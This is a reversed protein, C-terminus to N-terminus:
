FAKAFEKAYDELKVRGMTEPKHKEYDEGLAGTHLANGLEVFSAVVHDPMGTKKMGDRMAESSITKWKLEPKSIGAGLVRAIEQATREDSAVYRVKRGVGTASLEDAAAAAIDESHALVIKDEDGYNAAMFGTGKIMGIYNNLNYYFYGPRLHTIAIGSLQDLIEEVDHSGLIFGTGQDLHAGWSSLHVVQKVGAQPLAKAYNSGIRNYYARIDPAPFNPPIMVFVAHAGNFTAALFDVDEVSGIAATAKLDEIAVRKEEKSSILTVAYGQKILKETLPRGIHGLSGTIVIKM